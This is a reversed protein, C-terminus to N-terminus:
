RDVEVVAGGPYAKGKSLALLVNGSDLVWGDRSSQPYTWTAKGAADAIFTESGTALFAHKVPDAAVVPAALAAALRAYAAPRSLLHPMDTRPPTPHPTSIRARAPRGPLADDAPLPWRDPGRRLAGSRGAHGCPASVDPPM